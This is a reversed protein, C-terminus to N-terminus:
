VVYHTVLFTRNPAFNTNPLYTKRTANPFGQNVNNNNNNYKEKDPM